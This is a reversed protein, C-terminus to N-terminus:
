FIFNTIIIPPHINKPNINIHNFLNQHMFYHYSQDNNKPLNYYEDLNFTRVESFDIDGKKRTVSIKVQM